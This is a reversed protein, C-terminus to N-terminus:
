ATQTVLPNAPSRRVSPMRQIETASVSTNHTSLPLPPLHSLDDVNDTAYTYANNLYRPVNYHVEVTNYLSVLTLFVLGSLAVVKTTFGFSLRRFRSEDKAVATTDMDTVNDDYQHHPLLHMIRQSPPLHHQPTPNSSNMIQCSPSSLM